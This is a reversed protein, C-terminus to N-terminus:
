NVLHCHPLRFCQSVTERIKELRFAPVASMEEQLALFGSQEVTRLDAQM